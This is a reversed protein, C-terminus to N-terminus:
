PGEVDCSATLEGRPRCSAAVVLWRDGFRSLFWTDLEGQPGSVRVAAQRGYRELRTVERLPIIEQESLAQECPSAESQELEQRTLPALLACATSADGSQLADDFARATGEVAGEHGGGCGALALVLLVLLASRLM